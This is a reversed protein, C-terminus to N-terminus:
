GKWILMLLWAFAIGSYCALFWFPKDAEIHQSLEKLVASVFMVTVTWKVM